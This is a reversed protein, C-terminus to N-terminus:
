ASLALRTRIEHKAWEKLIDFTWSAGDKLVFEGAKKWIADDRMSDLFDHGAWTMRSVAYGSPNGNEDDTVVGVLLGADVLLAVHYAREPLSREKTKASAGDNGEVAQLILRVLDMDRKM